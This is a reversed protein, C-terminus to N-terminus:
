AGRTVPLDFGDTFKSNTGLAGGPDFECAPRVGNVADRFLKGEDVDLALDLIRISAPYANRQFNVTSFEFDFIEIVIRFPGTWKAHLGSLNGSDIEATAVLARQRQCHRLRRSRAM